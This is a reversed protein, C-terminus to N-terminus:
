GVVSKVVKTKDRCRALSLATLLIRLWGSQGLRLAFKSIPGLKFPKKPLTGESVSLVVMCGHTPLEVLAPLVYPAPAGLPQNAIVRRSPYDRAV